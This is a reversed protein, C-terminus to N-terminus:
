RPSYRLKHIMNISDQDYTVVLLNDYDSEDFGKEFEQRGLIMNAFAPTTNSHGVILVNRLLTDLLIEEYLSKIKSAEYPRIKLGKRAAMTDVTFLTRTYMTSYVADIQTGKMLDALYNARELGQETLRPNGKPITDKEAHRILYFVKDASATRLEFLNGTTDIAQSTKFASVYTKDAIMKSQKAGCSVILISIIGLLTMRYLKLMNIM